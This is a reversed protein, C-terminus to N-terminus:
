FGPKLVMRFMGAYKKYLQSALRNEDANQALNNMQDELTNSNGAPTTERYDRKLNERFNPSATAGTMVHQPSTATTRLARNSTDAQKLAARFDTPKLDKPKYDPTNANAINQTLVRQRQGLWDMKENLAAFLKLKNIDM